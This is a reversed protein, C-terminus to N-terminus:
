RNKQLPAKAQSPDKSGSLEDDNVFRLNNPATGADNRKSKILNIIHRSRSIPPAESPVRFNKKSNLVRQTHYLASINNTSPTSLHNNLFNSSVTGSLRMKLPFGLM